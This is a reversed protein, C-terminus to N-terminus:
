LRRKLSTRRFTDILWTISTHEIGIDVGERWERRGERRERRGERWERRGERREGQGREM